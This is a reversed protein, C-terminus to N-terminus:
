QYPIRTLFLSSSVAGLLVRGKGMFGEGRILDAKLAGILIRLLVANVPRSHPPPPPSAPPSGDQELRM